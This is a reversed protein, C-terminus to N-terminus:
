VGLESLQEAIENSAAETKTRYAEWKEANWLEIRNYLGAVVVKKEIHGYQRLYEPVVMRGQKDLEVDMAGALMLRSFARTNSQSIPLSSLRKALEEWEKRPYVVLCEDLGKTVVAGQQLKKRFRAPLAMRGKEDVSHQYEGIFMRSMGLNDVASASTAPMSQNTGGYFEGYNGVEFWKVGM